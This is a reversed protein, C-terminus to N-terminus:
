DSTELAKIRQTLAHDCRDSEAFYVVVWFYFNGNTRWVECM